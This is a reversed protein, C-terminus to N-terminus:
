REKAIRRLTGLEQNPSQGQYAAGDGSLAGLSFVSLVTRSGKEPSVSQSPSGPGWLGQVGPNAEGM